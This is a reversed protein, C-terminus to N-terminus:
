GTQNLKLPPFPAAVANPANKNISGYKIKNGNNPKTNTKRIPRKTPNAVIEAKKTNNIWVKKISWPICWLKSAKEKIINRQM